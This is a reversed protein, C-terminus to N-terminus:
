RSELEWVGVGAAHVKVLVEGPGPMPVPLHHISIVEPGGGHDIAAALMTEPTAANSNGVAIFAM